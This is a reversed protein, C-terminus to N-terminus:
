SVHKPSVPYNEATCSHDRNTFVVVSVHLTESVPAVRRRPDVTESDSRGAVGLDRDTVVKGNSPHSLCELTGWVDRQRRHTPKPMM